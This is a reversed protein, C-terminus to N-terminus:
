DRIIKKIARSYEKFTILDDKNQDMVERIVEIMIDVGDENPEEGIFKEQM